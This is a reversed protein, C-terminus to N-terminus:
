APPLLPHTGAIMAKCSTAVVAELVSVFDYPGIARHRLTHVFYEFNQWEHASCYRKAGTEFCQGRCNEPCEQWVNPVPEDQFGTTNLAEEASLPVVDDINAFASASVLYFALETAVRENVDVIESGPADPRFVRSVPKIKSFWFAHYGAFKQRSIKDKLDASIRELDRRAYLAAESFKDVSLSEDSYGLGHHELYYVSFDLMVRAMQEADGNAAAISM